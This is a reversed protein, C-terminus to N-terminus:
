KNYVEQNSSKSSAPVVFIVSILIFLYIIFMGLVEASWNINEIIDDMLYLFKDANEMPIAFILISLLIYELTVLFPHNRTFKELEKM